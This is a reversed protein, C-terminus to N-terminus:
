SNMFILLHKNNLTVLEPCPKNNLLLISGIKGEPFSPCHNMYVNPSM